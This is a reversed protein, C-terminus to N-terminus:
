SRPVTTYEGKCNTMTSFTPNQAYEIFNELTVVHSGTRGGDGGIAARCMNDAFNFCRELGSNPEPIDNYKLGRMLCLMVDEPSIDPSPEQLPSVPFFFLLADLYHCHAPPPHPHHSGQLSAHHGVGLSGIPKMM